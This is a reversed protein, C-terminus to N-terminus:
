CYFSVLLFITFIDSLERYHLIGAGALIYQFSLRDCYAENRSSKHCFDSSLNRLDRIDDRIHQLRSWKIRGGLATFFSDNYKIVETKVM